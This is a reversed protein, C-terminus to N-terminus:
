HGSTGGDVALTSGTIYGSARSALFVVAGDIERQTATRGLSSGRLFEELTDSSMESILDTEVFGPAIANVRIGKRKSWQHSLDRTLGIMGAKSAAYAAQPLASKILGLMSAVNVITSGPGMVRGCAQAVWYSGMLNVDLVARFDEPRERTAPASSTVGANNILIDLRGFEAVAAQALADCQEPITVDTPVVLCRRGIAEVTVAVADLNERRRAAIVVDAGAEALARAFGAGLGSGAGTVVAVSGDLRFLDLVTESQDPSSHPTM